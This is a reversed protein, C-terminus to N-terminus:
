MKIWEFLSLIRYEVKGYIQSEHILGFSRSDISVPINNNSYYRNDGFVVFWGEPVKYSGDEQLCQETMGNLECIDKLTLGNMNEVAFQDEVLINDIYLQKGVYKFSQGGKIIVRKILLEKNRVGVNNKQITNDYEFVIIDNNDVKKTCSIILRDDPLLTPRMSNQSVTAPFMIFTFIVEIILSALLVIQIYENTIKLVKNLKEKQLLQFVIQMVLFILPIITILVIIWGSFVNSLLPSLLYFLGIIIIALFNIVLKTLEKKGFINM